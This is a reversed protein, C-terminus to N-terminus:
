QGAPLKFREIAEMIALLNRHRRDAPIDETIGILFGNWPRAESILRVADDRIRDPERLHWSSPYNIWLVKGALMQRAVSVPPSIGPDYAEIYDLRTGALERMIISNDADLHCGILTGTKHLVEAAEDYNPIFYEKFSEIGVLQPVVNGGYNAFGLPGGAVIPYVKRNVEVLARYLDLIEDRNDMWEYGFREAGLFDSILAQLPELPIQDRVVYDDGLDAELNAVSSYDPTVVTDRIYFLIRKYDEGTKFYHERIWPMRYEAQESLQTLDGHPTSIRTKILRRGEEDRYSVQETKANPQHLTYSTVRKVLCLGRNRLEREAAARPFLEEYATLPIADPRGGSLAELVRQRPTLRRRDL